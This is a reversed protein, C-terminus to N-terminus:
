ENEKEKARTEAACTIARAVAPCVGWAILTKEAQPASYLGRSLYAALLDVVLPLPARAFTAPCDKMM